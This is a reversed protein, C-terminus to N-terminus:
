IFDPNTKLELKIKNVADLLVLRTQEESWCMLESVHHLSRIIKLNSDYRYNFTRKINPELKNVVIQINLLKNNIINDNQNYIISTIDDLKWEDEGNSSGFYMINYKSKINKPIKNSSKMYHPLLNLQHESICKLMESNVYRKSYNYFNSKGNFNKISKLLGVQAYLNLVNIRVNKLLKYNKKYFIYADSRTKNKYNDYIIIDIQQRMIPTLNNNQILKNILMSQSVHLYALSNINLVILLIIQIFIVLILNM